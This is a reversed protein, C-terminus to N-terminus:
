FDENEGRNTKLLNNLISKKANPNSVEIRQRHTTLISMMQGKVSTTATLAKIFIDMLGDSVDQLPKPLTEKIFKIYEIDITSMPLQKSSVLTRYFLRDPKKESADGILGYITQLGGDQSM